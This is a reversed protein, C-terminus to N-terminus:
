LSQVLITSIKFLFFQSIWIDDTKPANKNKIEQEFDM